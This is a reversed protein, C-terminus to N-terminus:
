IHRGGSVEIVTGTIYASLDSALFLAAHAVDRVSGIRGLPVEGIKEQLVDPPMARTMDTDILGPQIANVRVGHRAVEKAAAKTLGVIGAKAASYNTQGPNGVKGSISSMNVISGGGRERMRASAARTGLWAGLVHVQLVANFDEVSMKRMVRDRTIGANNVWVDIGGAAEMAADALASVSEESTVDCAVGFHGEGPLLGATEQASRLDVDSVVVTAGSLAMARAMDRGIGRGAGTIVVTKATLLGPPTQAEAETGTTVASM